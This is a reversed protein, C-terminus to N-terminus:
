NSMFQSCYQETRDFYQQDTLGSNMLDYNPHLQILSENVHFARYIKPHAPYHPLLFSVSKVANAGSQTNPYVGIRAAHYMKGDDELGTLIVKHKRVFEEVSDSLGNDSIIKKIATTSIYNYQTQIYHGSELNQLMFTVPQSRTSLNGNDDERFIHIEIKYDDSNTLETPLDTLRLNVRTFDIQQSLPNYYSTTIGSIGDSSLDHCDAIKYDAPVEFSESDDVTSSNQTQVKQSGCATFYLSILILTFLKITKM